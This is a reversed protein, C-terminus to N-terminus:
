EATTVNAAALEVVAKRYAEQKARADKTLREIESLDMGVNPVVNNMISEQEELTKFDMGQTDYIPEGNDHVGSLSCGKTYKLIIDKPELADNPVTESPHAIAKREGFYEKRLAKVGFPSRVTKPIEITEYKM